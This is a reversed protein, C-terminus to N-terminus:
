EYDRLEKPIVIDFTANKVGGKMFSRTGSGLYLRSLDLKAFWRHRAKEAMYLFMRKVKVSSCEELLQQVLLARLNTLMEMLYYVDMLGYYAPSLLLCEMIAREPSSVNLTQGQYELQEIGVSGLAKSSMEVLNMDLEVGNLWKPLPPRVPSFVIASPKGLAIYHSYGKLELASAAGIHYKVNTQKQYSALIGYLTPSDGAFKYVGTSMRQLWGSEMYGCVESRSLGMKGLWSTLMIGNSPTQQRLINIKTSM